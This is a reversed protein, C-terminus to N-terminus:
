IWLVDMLIHHMSIYKKKTREGLVPQVNYIFKISKLADESAAWNFFTIASPDKEDGAFILTSGTVQAVQPFLHGM